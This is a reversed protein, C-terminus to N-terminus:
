IAQTYVANKIESKLNMWKKVLATKGVRRRGFIVILGAKAKELVKLEHARNVFIKM